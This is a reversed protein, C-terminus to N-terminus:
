VRRMMTEAGEGERSHEDKTFIYKSVKFKSTRRGFARFLYADCGSVQLSPSRGPRGFETYFLHSFEAGGAVMM